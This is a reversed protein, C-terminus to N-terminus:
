ESPMSQLERITRRNGGTAPVGVARDVWAVLKSRGTGGPADLLLLSPSFGKREATPIPNKGVVNVGRLLAVHTSM